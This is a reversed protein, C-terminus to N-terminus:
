CCHGARWPSCCRAVILRPGGFSPVAFAGASVQTSSVIRQFTPLGLDHLLMGLPRPRIRDHLHPQLSASVREPVLITSVFALPRGSSGHRLLVRRDIAREGQYLGLAPAPEKLVATWHLLVQVQIATGFCISLLHAVSGDYVPFLAELARAGLRLDVSRSREESRLSSM